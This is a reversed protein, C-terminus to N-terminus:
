SAEAGVLRLPSGYHSGLSRDPRRSALSAAIRAAQDRIEPIATSEFLAGRRNWGITRIRAEIRGTSKVLAGCEDVEVGLGLPDRRAVGNTVLAHLLPSGTVVSSPGTADVLTGVRLIERRDGSTMTVDFPGHGHEGIPVVREVRGSSVNLRGAGIMSDLSRAVTPSMRHRRIEWHRQAHRLLRSREVLPLQAWVAPTRCRMASVVNRWDSGQGEAKRATERIRHVLTRADKVDSLDLDDFEAFGNQTHVAPLLGHRSRVHIRGNRLKRGLVLAVDVMTLGSGVVLVDRDRPLGELAGLSWPDLVVEPTPSLGLGSLVSSQPAGIALVADDVVITRGAGLVVAVGETRDDVRLDRVQERIWTILTAPARRSADDLRDQLYRRYLRRAMFQDPESPIENTAMWRVFDDPVEGFASMCRAPVNLLHDPNDTAYACGAGLESRTEFILIHQPGTASRSLHLAVLIGSAGGGVIATRHRMHHKDTAGGGM